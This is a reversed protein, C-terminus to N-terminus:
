ECEPPRVPAGGGQRLGDAGDCVPCRGIQAGLIAVGQRREQAPKGGPHGADGVAAQRISEHVPVEVGPIEAAPAALEGQQVPAVAADAVRQEILRGEKVARRRILNWRQPSVPTIPPPFEYRIGIGRPRRLQDRRDRGGALRDDILTKEVADFGGLMRIM